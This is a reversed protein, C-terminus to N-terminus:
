TGVWLPTCGAGVHLQRLLMDVQRGASALSANSPPTGVAASSTASLKTRSASPAAVSPASQPAFALVSAALFGAAAQQFLISPAVTDSPM